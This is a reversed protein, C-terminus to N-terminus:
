PAPTALCSPLALEQGQSDDGQTITTQSFQWGPCVTHVLAGLETAQATRPFNLQVRGRIEFESGSIEAELM